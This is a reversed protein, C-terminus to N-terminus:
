ESVKKGKTSQRLVAFPEGKKLIGAQAAQEGFEDVRADKEGRPACLRILDEVGGIPIDLLKDVEAAKDGPLFKKGLRAFELADEVTRRTMTILKYGEPIFDPDTVAKNTAASRYSKAWAEVVQAVKIGLSVEKPDSILAPTVTAPVQLPAFKQGINIALEAVKPCKGVLSCFLCAGINPRATSFDDSDRGAEVAREVVTM